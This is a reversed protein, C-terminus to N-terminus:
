DYVYECYELAHHQPCECHYSICVNVILQCTLRLLLVNSSYMISLANMVTYICECYELTHHQPCECHYNICVNMIIQCTLILLLVNSSHMTSFANMITYVNVINLHMISLADLEHGYVCQCYNSLDTKVPRFM